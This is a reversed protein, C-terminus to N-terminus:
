CDEEEKDRKVWDIILGKEDEVPDSEWCPNEYAIESCTTLGGENFCCETINCKIKKYM